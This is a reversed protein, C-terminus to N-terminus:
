EALSLVHLTPTRARCRTVLWTGSVAHRGLPADAIAEASQFRLRGDALDFAIIRKDIWLYGTSGVLLPPVQAHKGAAADSRWLEGLTTPDLARRKGPTDLDVYAADSLAAPGLPYGDHVAHEIGDADLWALQDPAVRTSGDWRTMRAGIIRAGAATVLRWGAVLRAADRRVVWHAETTPGGTALLEIAVFLDGAVAHRVTHGPSLAHTAADAGTHADFVRVEPAPARDLWQGNVHIRTALVAFVADAAAFLHSVHPEAHTRVIAGTAMDVWQLSTDTAAVLMAGAKVLALTSGIAASWLQKGKQDLAFCALQSDFAWYVRAGDVIPETTGAGGKIKFATPVERVALTARFPLLLTAAAGLWDWLAAAEDATAGRAVLGALVGDRGTAPLSSQRLAALEPPVITEHGGRQWGAVFGVRAGAALYDRLAGHRLGDPDESEYEYDIRAAARAQGEYRSLVVRREESLVELSAREAWTGLWGPPRPHWDKASPVVIKFGHQEGTGPTRWQLELSAAGAAFGILEDPLQGALAAIAKSALPKGSKHRVVDVDDRRSFLRIWLSILAFPTM